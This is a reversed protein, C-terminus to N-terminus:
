FQSVIQMEIVQTINWCSLRLSKFGTAKRTNKAISDKDTM